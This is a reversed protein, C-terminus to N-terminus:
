KYKGLSGWFWKWERKDRQTYRRKYMIGTIHIMAVDESLKLKEALANEFHKIGDTTEDFRSELVLTAWGCSLCKLSGKERTTYSVLYEYFTHKM